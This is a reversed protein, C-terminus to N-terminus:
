NNIYPHGLHDSTVNNHLSGEASKDATWKNEIIKESWENKINSDAVDNGTDLLNCIAIM